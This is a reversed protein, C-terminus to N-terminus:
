SRRSGSWGELGATLMVLGLWAVAVKAAGLTVVSVVKLKVRVTLRLDLAVALLLITTGMM